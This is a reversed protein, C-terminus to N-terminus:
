EDEAFDPPLTPEIFHPSERIMDWCKEFIELTPKIDEYQKRNEEDGDELWQWQIIKSAIMSEVEKVDRSFQSSDRLHITLINEILHNFNEGPEQQAQKELEKVIWEPLRISKLQKAM